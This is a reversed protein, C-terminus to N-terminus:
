YEIDNGAQYWGKGKKFAKKSFFSPQMGEEFLSHEKTFNCIVIKITGTFEPANRMRFAFWQLSKQGNTDNRM